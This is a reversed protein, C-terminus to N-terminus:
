KFKLKLKQIVAQTSEKDTIKEYNEIYVKVDYVDAKINEPLNLKIEGLKEGPSLLKSEYLIEGSEALKITYKIYDANGAPNEFDITAKGDALDATIDALKNYVNEAQTIIQSTQVADEKNNDKNNSNIVVIIIAVLAIVFVALCCIFYIQNRKKKGSSTKAM